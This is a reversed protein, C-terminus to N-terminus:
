NPSQLPFVNQHAGYWKGRKFGRVADEKRMQVCPLTAAHTPATACLFGGADVRGARM